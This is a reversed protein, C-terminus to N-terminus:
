SSPTSQIFLLLCGHFKTHMINNYKKHTEQINPSAFLMRMMMTMMMLM